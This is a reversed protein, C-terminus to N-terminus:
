VKLQFFISYLEFSFLDLKHRTEKASQESYPDVHFETGDGFWKVTPIPVGKRTGVQACLDNGDGNGLKETYHM